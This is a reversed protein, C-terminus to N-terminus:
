DVPIVGGSERVQRVLDREARGEYFDTILVVMSRAPQRALRHRLM